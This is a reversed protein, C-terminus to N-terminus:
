LISDETETRQQAMMDLLVGQMKQRRQLRAYMKREAACGALMLINAKYVQGIRTIRGNAQEFTENSDVPAYWIITSAETLTLAHAMCEPHAILVSPDPQQQFRLFIDDRKGKSVDGYVVEASWHKVIRRHLMHTMETFPVFVIVKENCQEILDLLTEIRNGPDIEVADGKTDYVSGGAIQLLKNRKVGENAARVGHEAIETALDNMMEKYARKQEASLTVDHYTYTEGPLDVCKDREYRVAPKMVQFVVNNADPRETWVFEGRKVMTLDRFQGFYKPVTHPTVLRCQQYVDTPENPRPTATNGWVWPIPRPRKWILKFLAKQMQTPNRFSALEDIDYLDIDDRDLLDAEMVTLGDHNIIYFDVDRALQKRRRAKDGHLVAFTRGMNLYISDGWARELASLPATILAKRVYGAKMLYDAAWLNTLTKGTGLGNLCYAHPNVTLFRASDYQHEYIYPVLVPDHPWDYSYSIPSPPDYGMESLRLCTALTFPAGTLRGEDLAFADPLQAVLQSAPQQIVIGGDEQFVQFM